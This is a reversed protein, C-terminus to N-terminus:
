RACEIEGVNRNQGSAGCAGPRCDWDVAAAHRELRVIGIVVSRIRLVQRERDCSRDRAVNGDVETVDPRQGAFQVAADVEIRRVNIVVGFQQLSQVVCPGALIWDQQVLQQRSQIQVVRDGPKSRYSGFVAAANVLGTRRLQPLAGRKCGGERIAIEIRNRIAQDRQRRRRCLANLGQWVIRAGADSQGADVADSRESVAAIAHRIASM